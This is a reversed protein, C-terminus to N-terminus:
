RMEVTVITSPRHTAGCDPNGRYKYDSPQLICSLNHTVDCWPKLRYALDQNFVLHLPAHTNMKRRRVVRDHSTCLCVSLCMCIMLIRKISYELNIKCRRVFGNNKVFRPWLIVRTWDDINSRNHCFSFFLLFLLVVRHPLPMTKNVVNNVWHNM